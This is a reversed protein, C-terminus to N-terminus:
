DYISFLNAYAPMFPAIFAFYGSSLDLRSNFFVEPCNEEGQEHWLSIFFRRNVIQPM